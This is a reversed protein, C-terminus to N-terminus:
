GKGNQPFCAAHSRCLDPLSPAALPVCVIPFKWDPPHAHHLAPAPSPPHMVDHLSAPGSNHSLCVCSGAGAGPLGDNAGLRPAALSFFTQTRALPPVATTM